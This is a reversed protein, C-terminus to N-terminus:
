ARHTAKTPKFILSDFVCGRAACAFARTSRLIVFVLYSWAIFLRKCLGYVWNPSVYKEETPPHLGGSLAKQTPYTSGTDREPRSCDCVNLIDEYFVYLLGRKDPTVDAIPQTKKWLVGADLNAGRAHLPHL